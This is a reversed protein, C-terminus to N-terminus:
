SIVQEVIKEDYISFGAKLYNPLAAAHDLDCTHVWVRRPKFSWARAVAWSLLYKGLGRGVFDPFLGFYALEIQGATRRDLEVYGATEEGVYLVDIEVLEDAVIRLLEDDPMLNRDVWTYARGVGNYLFRYAAVTPAHRREIRTGVIPPAMVATAPPALMELYTTKTLIRKV